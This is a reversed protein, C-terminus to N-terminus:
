GRMMQSLKMARNPTQEAWRSDLMQVSAAEYDFEKLAAWMKKFKLVGNVGMQYCMEALIEQKELPLKNVFPEKTELEKIKAKLRYELILAAEEKVLPLKTGYGITDFGLTDKYVTGVFGENKMIEEILKKM